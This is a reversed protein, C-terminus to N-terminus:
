IVVVLLFVYKWVRKVDMNVAPQDMVMVSVASMWNQMVLAIM